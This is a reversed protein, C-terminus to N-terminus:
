TLAGEWQAQSRDAVDQLNHHRQRGAHRVPAETVHLCLMSVRSDLQMARGALGKKIYSAWLGYLAAIHM